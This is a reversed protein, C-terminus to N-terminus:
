KGRHTKPKGPRPPRKMVNGAQLDLAQGRVRVKSLRQIISDPLRAPLRVLTYDARIDLGNIQNGKLRAENAIAGVVNGPQVGNRRGVALRWTIQEGDDEFAFDGEAVPPLEEHVEGERGEDAGGRPGREARPGASRAHNVSTARSVSM